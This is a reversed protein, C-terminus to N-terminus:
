HRSNIKQERVQGKGSSNAGSCFRMNECLKLKQMFHWWLMVVQKNHLYPNQSLNQKRLKTVNEGKL